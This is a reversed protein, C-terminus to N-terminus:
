DRCAYWGTLEETCGNLFWSEWTSALAPPGSCRQLTWGDLAETFPGVGETDCDPLAETPGFLVAGDLSVLLNGLHGLDAVVPALFLGTGGAFRLTRITHLVAGDASCLRQGCVFFGEPLHGTSTVGPHVASLDQYAGLAGDLPSVQLVARPGLEEFFGSEEAHTLLEWMGDEPDSVDRMELVHRNCRTHGPLMLREVLLPASASREDRFHDSNTLFCDDVSVTSEVAVAGLIGSAPSLLLLRGGRASAFDRLTDVTSIPEDVGRLVFVSAEYRARLPVVLRQDVDPMLVVDGDALLSAVEELDGVQDGEDHGLQVVSFLVSWALTLCVVTAAVRRMGRGDLDGAAKAVLLLALPLVDVVLYRGYYYLYPVYPRLLAVTWLMAFGICVASTCADRRLIRPGALLALFGVPSLFLALRYVSHFRFLLPDGDPAAYGWPYMTGTQYLEVISPLSLALAALVLWPAANVLTGGLRESWTMSPGVAVRRILFVTITILSVAGLLLAAGSVEDVVASALERFLAPQRWAYYGLSVVFTGGVVCASTAVRRRTVQSWIPFLCLVLGLVVAPLYNLAQWRVFALAAFSVGSVLLPPIMSTRRGRLYRVLFAFGNLALAMAATESVPLKAFFVLAPNLAVLAAFLRVVAPRGDLEVALHYAGAVGLLAFGLLALHRGYGEVLAEGIAMWAPHVPYFDIQFLSTAGDVLDMSLLDARDYAQHLAGPLAERFRDVFDLDGSRAITAAMNTYLGPDQGGALSPWHEFRFLVAVGATAIMWPSPIGFAPPRRVGVCGLVVLTAVVGGVVSLLPTFGGVVLLAVAVLSTLSVFLVVVEHWSAAEQDVDRPRPNTAAGQVATM